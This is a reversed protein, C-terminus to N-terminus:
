RLYFSVHLVKLYTDPPCYINLLHCSYNADRHKIVINCLNVCM